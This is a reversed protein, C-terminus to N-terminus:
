LKECGTGAPDVTLIFQEVMDSKLELQNVQILQPQVQQAFIQSSFGVALALASFAAIYLKKM